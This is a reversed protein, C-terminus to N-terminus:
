TSSETSKQCPKEPEKKRKSITNYITFVAYAAYLICSVVIAAGPPCFLRYILGARCAADLAMGAPPPGASLSSLAALVPFMFIVALIGVDASTLGWIVAAAACQILAGAATVARLVTKPLVPLGLGSLASACPLAFSLIWACVAHNTQQVSVVRLAFLLPCVASYVFVFVSRKGLRSRIDRFGLAAAGAAASASAAIFILIMRRFPPIYFFFSYPPYLVAAAAASLTMVAACACRVAAYAERKM